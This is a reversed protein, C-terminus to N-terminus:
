KMILILVYRTRCLRERRRYERYYYYATKGIVTKFCVTGILALDGNVDPAHCFASRHESHINRDRGPNDGSASTISVRERGERHCAQVARQVDAYVTEVFEFPSLHTLSTLKGDSTASVLQRTYPKKSLLRWFDKSYSRPEESRRSFIRRLPSLPGFNGDPHPLVGIEKIYEANNDERTHYEVTPQVPDSSKMLVNRRTEHLSVM